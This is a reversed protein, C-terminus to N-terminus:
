LGERVHKFLSCQQLRDARSNPPFDDTLRAIAALGLREASVRHVM